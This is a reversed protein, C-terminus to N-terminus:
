VWQRCLRRQRLVAALGPWSRPHSLIWTLSGVASTRRRQRLHRRFDDWELRVLAQEELATTCWARGRCQDVVWRFGDEMEVRDNSIQGPHHHYVVTPEALALGSGIELVRIWLDLDESQRVDRFGGVALATERRVMTGSTVVLDSPTLMDRPGIVIPRRAPNGLVRGGDSTAPATVLVHERLEESLLELHTPTWEDDSDLFAVWSTSAVALGANRAKSISGVGLRSVVTAGYSRAVRASDDTSGDDVVVVERARATQAVVSRLARDLLEARNRVPIIVSVDVNSM